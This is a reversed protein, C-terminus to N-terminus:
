PPTEVVGFTFNEDEEAFIVLDAETSKVFDSIRMLILQISTM